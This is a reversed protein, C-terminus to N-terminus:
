GKSLPKLRTIHGMKRGPRPADKGYIHLKVGPTGAHRQWDRVEDGILNKMEADALRRPSGLPWGAVARVHQEFQSTEAAEITWHGSNHPRPAIENVLVRDDRTVFMEVALLGVLDLGDAIADAIREAERAVRAPVITPDAPAITTDLTHNVHRNEVTDFHAESGDLGRAVIVSIECKFDVFAELVAAETNLARWAADLDSAPELRQQGKGDYGFRSTKLIGPLGIQRAATHLADPSTIEAYPATAIGLGKIFSKELARDQSIRLVNWGPRVPVHDALLKVSEHPINEFEFTVVDVARAFADLAARDDYAARTARDTVQTAPADGPPCFVHSRFGLRAAALATMRGLQGGGIIGIVAGPALAASRKPDRGTAM